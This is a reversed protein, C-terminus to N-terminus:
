DVTEDRCQVTAKKNDELEEEAVTDATIRLSTNYIIEGALGDTSEGRGLLDQAEGADWKLRRPTGVM